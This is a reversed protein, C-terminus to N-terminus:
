IGNQTIVLQALEHSVQIDLDTPWLSENSGEGFRNWFIGVGPRCCCLGSCSNLLYLKYIRMVLYIYCGFYLDQHMLKENPLFSWKNLLLRSPLTDVYPFHDNSLSVFSFKNIKKNENMCLRYYDCGWLYLSILTSSNANTM